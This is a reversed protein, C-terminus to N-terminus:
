QFLIPVTFWVCVHGAIFETDGMNTIEPLQEGTVEVCISYAFCFTKLFHDQISFLQPASRRPDM